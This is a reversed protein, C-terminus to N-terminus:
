SMTKPASDPCPGSPKFEEGPELVIACIALERRRTELRVYPELYEHYARVLRDHERPTPVATGQSLGGM